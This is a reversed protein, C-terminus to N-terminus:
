CLFVGEEQSKTIWQQQISFGYRSLLERMISPTYRYSFFLRIREGRKFCFRERGVALVRDRRFKYHAALRLYSDGEIRWSLQGDSHKVGLDILFTMLWDRTLKNDYLPKVREVGRRYDQGPALNASFLLIDKPRVLEALVPMIQDPEFNPIMGFFTFVRAAGSPIQPEIFRLLDTALQLDAVIPTLREVIESTATATVLAMPTSVDIPTYGLSRGARRLQRLLQADKQGGGAGLGIVHVSEGACKVAATTFSSDYIAECDPDTRAPSCAEHLALWKQTQKYSDYHFKHNIARQRLSRLLEDQVAEPYQSPHIVIHLRDFM